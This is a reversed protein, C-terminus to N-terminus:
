TLGDKKELLVKLNMDKLARLTAEHVQYLPGNMDQELSGKVWVVAGAGAAAGVVLAVCGTSCFALATLSIGLFISKLQKM